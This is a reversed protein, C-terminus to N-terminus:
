PTLSETWTGGLARYLSIRFGLLNAKQRILNRELGQVLLLQTLVPLYDNLGNRYRVTAEELARRATVVVNELAKVHERQKAENVLADEVEKVATLVTRRYAALNEDAVALTRDVESARLKGDFIPATLNGALSMLWNDFLVDLDGEGYQARATLSIAPLRNARAASVQWDAARLRMGAARLDPRASLLDAPLGASPIEGPEPLNQRSIKLYVRPPKGLLLALEHLLLQEQVEVLPIEAKVNEVVQKQQYVDLVSVMAMYFRLEILELFILNTELQHELLRKQMRASIINVWHNAVEAALTMAATNLDERTATMELLTSERDSRIRGWLDLEYSSVVGLFYDENTVTERSISDSHRRAYYAGGTGTLDPYLGAGAQVALARAQDLRSWAERLTLNDTLADNILANLDPDNFEEWWRAPPKSEAGYLSFTRPLEGEPSPREKPKFPTCSASLLLIVTLIILRNICNGM